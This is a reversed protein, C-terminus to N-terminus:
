HGTSTEPAYGLAANIRELPVRVQAHRTLAEELHDYRPPLASTLADPGYKTKCVVEPACPALLSLPGFPLRRLPFFDEVPFSDVGGWVSDHLVYNNKVYALGIDVFPTTWQFRTTAGLLPNYLKVLGNAGKTISIGPLRGDLIRDINKEFVLLDVDDDWPLLDRYCCAGLLGGGYLVYDIGLSDFRRLITFLVERDLEGLQPRFLDRIESDNM